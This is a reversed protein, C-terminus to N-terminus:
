LTKADRKRRAAGAMGVLGSALLTLTAPEPVTTTLDERLAPDGDSLRAILAAQDPDLEPELYPEVMDDPVLDLGYLALVHVGSIDVRDFIGDWEWHSSKHPMTRFWGTSHQVVDDLYFTMSLRAKAGVWFGFGNMPENLTISETPYRGGQGLQWPGNAAFTACGDLNGAPGGLLAAPGSHSSTPVPTPFLLCAPGDARLPAAILTLTLLTPIAMRM